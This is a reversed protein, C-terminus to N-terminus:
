SVTVGYDPNPLKRWYQLTDALSQVLSLKPLWNMESQIKTNDGVIEPMRSPRMKTSDPFVTIPEGSLAILNDLITRIAVSQGSCINYASGPTGCESLMKYARVVDRVDVFDRKDDLNGVSLVPERRTNIIAAIQSCFDPVVFGLAQRPGIHNFARAEIIQMGYNRYYQKGLFHVTTKSVAYPSEPHFRTNEQLPLQDAQVFGYIESSTILLIRPHMQVHRVAELLNITGLINVMYFLEPASFSKQASAEGALHFISGFSHRNMIADLSARDTIDGYVLHIKDLCSQLNTVNEGPRILGFVTYGEQLLLETLHSGAFGSIGTILVDM